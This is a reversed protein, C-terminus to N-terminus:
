RVLLATLMLAIAAGAADAALDVADFRGSGRADMAEKVLGLALPFAAAVAPEGSAAGAGAGLALALGAHQLRDPALAGTQVARVAPPPLPPSSAAATDAPAVLLSAVLLVSGHLM